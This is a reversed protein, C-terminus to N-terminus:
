AQEFADAKLDLMPFHIVRGRAAMNCDHGHSIGGYL